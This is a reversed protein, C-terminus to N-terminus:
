NELSDTDVFFSRVSEYFDVQASPCTEKSNYKGSCCNISPDQANIGAMCASLCGIVKGTSDKRCLFSGAFNPDFKRFLSSPKESM